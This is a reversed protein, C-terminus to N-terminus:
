VGSITKSKILPCNPAQASMYPTLFQVYMYMYM